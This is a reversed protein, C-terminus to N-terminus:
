VINKIVLRLLYATLPILWWSTLLVAWLVIVVGEYPVTHDWTNVMTALHGFGIFLYSSLIILTAAPLCKTFKRTQPNVVFLSSLLIGIFCFLVYLLSDFLGVLIWRLGLFVITGIIAM